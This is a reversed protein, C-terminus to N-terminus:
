LNTKLAFVGFGLGLETKFWLAASACFFCWSYFALRREGSRTETDRHDIGTVWEGAKIAGSKPSHRKM